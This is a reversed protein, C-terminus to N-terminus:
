SSPLSPGAARYILWWCLRMGWRSPFATLTSTESAPRPLTSCCGATPPTSRRGPSSTEGTPPSPTTPSIPRPDTTLQFRLKFITGSDPFMPLTVVQNPFDAIGVIKVVNFQSLVKEKYTFYEWTATRCGQRSVGLFTFEYPDFKVCLEMGEVAGSNTLKVPVEVETGLMAEVVGLSLNYVSPPIVRVKTEASVEGGSQDAAKFGIVWMGTDSIQPTWNFIGTGGDYNMGPPPNLIQLDVQESDVDTARIQFVVPSGAVGEVSDPVFLQPDRNVNAVYINVRLRVESSEDGAVFFLVFPSGAASLPGTYEPVWLMRAEGNGLDSYMAGDPADEVRLRISDGDPDAAHIFLELTEKEAVYCTTFTGGSLGAGAENGSVDGALQLDDSDPLSVFCDPVPSFVPPLNQCYSIGSGLTWFWGLGLIIGLYKILLGKRM